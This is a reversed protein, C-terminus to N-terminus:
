SPPIFPTSPPPNPVLGLSITALTMEHLAPGSSSHESAMATLEDFDVHITKIIRRTRRNYIRFAKKTPAYGIFIGIDAKPQLKGLNESDNKPYCLAGFVHFFSLDPPKDRLLEYPTKGHSLRVISCNQTYCATTVAEAKEYYERLTQNVFETGNDTRLFKVWTFRSYDDVIFLNYKKGNVSTVSMPGYLDMHLLYLKEQNTDESKLKHPKKKSKDIACASCLHDFRRTWLGPVYYNSAKSLLCIPSSAMMDRLSLTYLNNGRSGTLLDVGELNHIFCTHQRFAVELNSDCFKGVSFLNHGLGPFLKSSRCEDLSSSPVDSVISGWSQSPEKKNASVSKLVKAKSIPVNTKSKRPKKSYVLKVVPKPTENELATPKRLPLKLESNANLKSHQVHATGKPQVVCDKNKLSSKVKRPHAEVKNKQTSSPTQRIKDKKTNGSPQSGSASTSPKVRKQGQEKPDCGSCTYELSQDLTYKSKVHEVIDRLVTAEEQTHKIYASHATQKNLLKPTIPEVDIKLMEPDSPHKTVDNDVLAKGKLKRLDDKLATIVLVKEQLSANLDSIEVSKLNVQNILDDCQEKSRIRAPKISDYLQKYTQKLNENEAILKTVLIKTLSSTGLTRENENLFQNIKVEFTTSELAINNVAEVNTPRSSLTPEASNVSNQSWFAQQSEEALMLTEKSDPITIANTKEIIDGVYLKPELQQAKKLYFPNQFGLAQKTTHDYFFQPKTLMHVTQASQDRKFIINDLQKIRKELAIERDINRSEEKKFDNKLLTVTQMLSEKEKLHESLTQKLHDIEVSQACSDSINDKSKLDVNQGEKLVKVQEKYRELEATLTDNVSKNELNIKTCNVVQTKLQEIVSLILADQQASSNSNQVAAETLADSGYHSLNAMLAVKATNLEDCDSDYADLDDAQYAANHTIVPLAQGDPLVHILLVKEKFWSDDRKRKPKTCQKSMHSEGKCNYCIVMRQKGSNSGSARPTYTRSTGAALSTQREVVILLSMMHNIADIPDHVKRSCKWYCSLESYKKPITVGNEEISPWILPGNERIELFMRGTSMEEHIADMRSKWSVTCKRKWCPHVITLVVSIALEPIAFEAVVYIALESVVSIALEPIAFEAVVSAALESISFEAVISIELEAVVYIALESIVFEAVVSIALEPIAFEAVVSIALEPIAFEAVVSIALESIVFEALM